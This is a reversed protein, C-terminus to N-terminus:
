GRSLGHYMVPLALDVLKNATQTRIGFRIWGQRHGREAVRVRVSYVCQDNGASQASAVSIELIDSRVDQVSFAKGTLSRLTVAEQIEAGVYKGGLVIARPYAQVDEMVTGQVPLPVPPLAEGGDNIARLQVCFSFPGPALSDRPRITLNFRGAQTSVAVLATASDCDARVDQLPITPSLEVTACEFPEGRILREGFDVSRASPKFASRVRTRLDWAHRPSSGDAIRPVLRISRVGRDVDSSHQSRRGSGEPPRGAGCGALDLDGLLNMRLRIDASGNAPVLLSAPEIRLTPCSSAFGIIEVDAPTRNQISMRRVFEEQEWVEGFDLYKPDIYLGDPTVGSDRQRAGALYAFGCIVAVFAFGLVPGSWSSQWITRILQALRM